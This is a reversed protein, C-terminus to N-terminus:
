KKARKAKAKRAEHSNYKAVVAGPKKSGFRQEYEESIWRRILESEKLGADEALRQLMAREEERFVMNFRHNYVSTETIPMHEGTSAYGETLIRTTIRTALVIKSFVRIQASGNTILKRRSNLADSRGRM